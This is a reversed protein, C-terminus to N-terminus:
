KWRVKFLFGGLASILVYFPYIIELLPIYVLLKETQLFKASSVLISMDSLLKILYLLLAAKWFLPNLFGAILFGLMSISVTFVLLAVLIIQVDTYSKSKSAWRIRQNFFESLNKSAQSKVIASTSKLFRIKGKRKKISSLLFMDDGSPENERLDNISEQWAKPTFSLNAGNCLIPMKSAAAGAGTAILSTFELAQMKSFLSQKAELIVPAIILDCNQKEQYQAIAQLWSKSPTCDADTCVILEGKAFSIGEKLANKKGNGSANLLRLQSINSTYKEIIQLSNDTSNDNVLILEFNPHTQAAIGELLQALNEEENKFPVVLSIFLNSHKDSLIEEELNKWGSSLHLMLFLYAFGIFIALFIIFMSM